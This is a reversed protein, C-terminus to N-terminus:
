RSLPRSPASPYIPLVRSMIYSRAVPEAVLSVWRQPPSDLEPLRLSRCDLAKPQVMFSAPHVVLDAMALLSSTLSGGFVGAVGIVLNFRKSSGASRILPVCYRHESDADWCHTHKTGGPIGVSRPSFYPDVLATAM